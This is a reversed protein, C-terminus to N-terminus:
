CVICYAKWLKGANRLIIQNHRNPQRQDDKMVCLETFEELTECIVSKSNDDVSVFMAQRLKPLRENVNMFCKHSASEKNVLLVQSAKSLLMTEASYFRNLTRVSAQLLEDSEYMTLNVM